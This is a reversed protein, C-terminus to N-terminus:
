LRRPTENWLASDLDQLEPLRQPPKGGSLAPCIKRLREPCDVPFEEHWDRPPVGAPSPIRLKQRPAELEELYKEDFSWYNVSRNTLDSNALLPFGASEDEVGAPPLEPTEM